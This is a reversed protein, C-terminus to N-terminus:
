RWVVGCATMSNFQNELSRNSKLYNLKGDFYSIQDDEVESSGQLLPKSFSIFIKKPHNRAIRYSTFYRTTRNWENMERQQNESSCHDM